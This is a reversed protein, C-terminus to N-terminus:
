ANRSGLIDLKKQVFHRTEYSVPEKAYGVYVVRGTFALEEVAGRFSAATGIAACGVLCYTGLHAVLHAMIDALRLSKRRALAKAAGSSHVEAIKQGLRIGPNRLQADADSRAHNASGH